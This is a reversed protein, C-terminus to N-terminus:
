TNSRYGRADVAVGPQYKVIRHPSAHIGMLRATENGKVRFGHWAGPQIEITDGRSLVAPENRATELWVELTGDLV